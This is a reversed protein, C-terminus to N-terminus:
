ERRITKPLRCQVEGRSIAVFGRNARNFIDAAGAPKQTQGSRANCRQHCIYVHLIRKGEKKKKEERGRGRKQSSGVRRILIQVLISYSLHPCARVDGSDNTSWDPRPSISRGMWLIDSAAGKGCTWMRRSCSCDRVRTSVM